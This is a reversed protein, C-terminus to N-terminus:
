ESSENLWMGFSKGLKSLNNAPLNAGRNKKRTHSEVFDHKGKSQSQNISPPETLDIEVEDNNNEEELQEVVDALAVVGKGTARDKGFALALKDLLLIQANRYDKANPHSKIYENWVDDSDVIIMKTEDNWGFGSQNLMDYVIAYITRLRKMASEIHLKVKIGCGPFKEDMKAEAMKLTYTKFQRNDCRQGQYAAEILIDLLAEDEQNSWQRRDRKKKNIHQINSKSEMGTPVILGNRRSIADRLVRSDLASGEWGTLVYIFKMDKSCVGLVNTSIDGKRNRYRPKDIIPVNVEIHTGDLARLCSKFWKWREDLCDEPVPDPARLLTEQLRLVSNLALNFYRSITEGSM